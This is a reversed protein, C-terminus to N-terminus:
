MMTRRALLAGSILLTGAGLALLSAGGTDPLVNTEVVESTPQDPTTPTPAPEVPAHETPTPQTPTPEVPDPETPTTDTDQPPVATTVFIVSGDEYAIQGSSETFKCPVGDGNADLGNPDSADQNLLAQAEQQAQEGSDGLESCAVGQVVTDDDESPAAPTVFIVSGDEYSIQRSSETFECPVGDGDADLGSSGSTDQNLLIQAQQQAQEGSDGLESCASVQAVSRALAPSVVLLAMALMSVILMLKGM